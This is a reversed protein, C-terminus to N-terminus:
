PSGEAGLDALRDEFEAAMGPHGHRSAAEIGRRLADRADNPRDLQLLAGALRGWANGQDDAAALYEGLVDVVENWRGAKEYEMALAFLVRGDGPNRERMALLSEIRPM